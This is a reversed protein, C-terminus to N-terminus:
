RQCDLFLTMTLFSTLFRILLNTGSVIGTRVVAYEFHLFDHHISLLAVCELAALPAVLVLQRLRSYRLYHSYKPEPVTIRLTMDSIPFPLTVITEINEGSTTARMLTTDRAFIISNTCHDLAFTSVDPIIQAADSGDLRSRYLGGDVWYILDDGDICVKGPKTPRAIISSNSGDLNARSLTGTRVM